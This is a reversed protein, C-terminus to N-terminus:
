DPLAWGVGTAGDMSNKTDKELGMNINDGTAGEDTFIHSQGANVSLKYQM